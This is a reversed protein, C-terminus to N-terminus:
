CVCAMKTALLVDSKQERNGKVNCMQAGKSTKPLSAIKKIPDIVFRVHELILQPLFLVIEPWRCFDKM